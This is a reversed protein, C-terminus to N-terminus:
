IISTINHRGELCPSDPRSVSRSTLSGFYHRSPTRPVGSPTPSDCPSLSFMSFSSLHTHQVVDSRIIHVLSTTGCFPSVLPPNVIFHTTVSLVVLLGASRCVILSMNSCSPSSWSSPPGIFVLSLGIWLFVQGDKWHKMTLAFYLLLLDISRCQRKHGFVSVASTAEMAITPWWM